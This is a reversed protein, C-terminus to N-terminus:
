KVIDFQNVCYISHMFSFHFELTIVFHASNVYQNYAAWVFDHLLPCIENIASGAVHTVKSMGSTVVISTM